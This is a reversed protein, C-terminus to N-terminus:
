GLAREVEIEVEPCFVASLREGPKAEKVELYGSPSPQRYVEIRSQTLDVLWVEPIGHRAYLPLKVTRDYALSTDAVEILLLVDEPGPHAQAYSQNKVLALDPQPESQESLRIPDQVRVLAESGKVFVRVLRSLCDAHKAGVPAMEFIEGEILEVREDEAFIGAEGMRQFEEVTIRHRRPYVSTAM